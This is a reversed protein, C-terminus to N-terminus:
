YVDATLGFNFNTSATIITGDNELCKLNALNDDKMLCELAKASWGNSYEYCTEEVVSLNCKHIKKM